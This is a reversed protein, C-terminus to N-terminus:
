SVSRDVTVNRFKGINSATSAAFRFVAETAVPAAHKKM